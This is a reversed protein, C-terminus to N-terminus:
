GPCEFIREVAPARTLDTNNRRLDALRKVRRLGIVVIIGEVVAVRIGTLQVAVQDVVDVCLKRGIGLDVEGPYEPNLALFICGARGITRIIIEVQVLEVGVEDVDEAAPEVEDNGRQRIIGVGRAILGGPVIHPLGLFVQCVLVRVNVQDIRVIQDVVCSIRGALHELVLNVVGVDGIVPQGPAKEVQERDAAVGRGVRHGIGEGGIFVAREGAVQEGVVAVAGVAVRLAVRQRHTRGRNRVHGVARQHQVRVAIEAVRRVGIEVAGVCEGVFDRITVAAGVGGHHRDRDVRDVVIRDGDVVVTKRGDVGNRQM